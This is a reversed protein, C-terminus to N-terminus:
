KYEGKKLVNIVDNIVNEPTSAGATVGINRSKEFIDNYKELDQHTEIHITNKIGSLIETLHTTNASSKSGVVVMLDSEQALEVAAKQRNSTAACITNYIRLEKANEVIIPLIGKFNEMKQTTQIVVGIKKSNKIKDLYEFAEDTSSIVISEDKSNLDANAKIAIVEPHDARGIIIVKYDEDTLQRARDQVKKVDPCTADVIECGKEELQKITDPTAGHTRIICVGNSNDPIEDIGYVTKIGINDLYEIVQNNHILQGLIYVAKDPNDQKIRETLEVARKVGYCFGAFKALKINKITNINKEPAILFSCSGEYLNLSLLGHNPNFCSLFYFEFM